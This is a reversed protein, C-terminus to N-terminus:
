ISAMEAQLQEKAANMFFDMSEFMPEMKKLAQAMVNGQAHLVTTQTLRAAAIPDQTLLNHAAYVAAVERAAQDLSIYSSASAAAEAESRLRDALRRLEEHNTSSEKENM